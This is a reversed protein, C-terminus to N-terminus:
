RFQMAKENEYSNKQSLFIQEGIRENAHAKQLEQGNCPNGSCSVMVHM